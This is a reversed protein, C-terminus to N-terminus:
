RPVRQWALVLYLLLYGAALAGLALLFLWKHDWRGFSFEKVRVRRVGAEALRAAVPETLVVSEDATSILPEEPNDPSQGADANLTVPTDSARVRDLTPVYAAAAALSGVVVGFVILAYAVNKM